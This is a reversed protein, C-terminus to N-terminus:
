QKRAFPNTAGGRMSNMRAAPSTIIVQPTAAGSQRVSASTSLQRPLGPHPAPPPPLGQPAGTSAGAGVPRSARHQPPIPAGNQGSGVNRAGPLVGLEIQAPDLPRGQVRSASVVAAEPRIPIAVEVAGRAPSAFGSVARSGMVSAPKSPAKFNLIYPKEGLPKVNKGQRWERVEHEAQLRYLGARRIAENLATYARPFHEDGIMIHDEGKATCTSEKGTDKTAEKGKEKGQDKSADKGTDKIKDKVIAPEVWPYPFDNAQNCMIAYRRLHKLLGALLAQRQDPHVRVTQLLVQSVVLCFM